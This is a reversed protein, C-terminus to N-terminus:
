HLSEIARAVRDRYENFLEPDTSYSAYDGVINAPIDLLKRAASLKNKKGADLVPVKQLAEVKQRLLHFYEYDEIGDRQMEWRISDIPGDLYKAKDVGPNRNPPYLFRGDGNGWPIKQGAFSAGGEFWCMPDQWPNQLKDTYATASTWYTSQWGLMGRVGQSWCQWAFARMATPPADIFPTTFPADSESAMYAWFEDGAKQRAKLKANDLYKPTFCWIDVAGYLPAEPQETLLRKLQPAYKKILEMTRRVEGYTAEVPEDAWYVYATALWGRQKLHAQVQSLYSGMLVEYEKSGEKYPLAAEGTLNINWGLNQLPLMWSRIPYRAFAGQMERDFETWDIKVQSPSVRSSGATTNVGFDVKPTVNTYVYPATRHRAYNDLYKQLVQRTEAKGTLNHYRQILSTSINFASRLQTTTPLGFNYIRLSIPVSRQWGDGAIKLEGRYLGPPTKEPTYVSIWFPQNEGAKLTLPKQHLPLPDPWLGTAGGHASPFLVDVYEVDHIAIDGAAIKATGPGTLGNLTVRVNQVDREPRVIVQVAEYENAASSLEAGHSAKSPPQEDRRVKYGAGAWWVGPAGTLTAGYGAQRQAVTVGETQMQLGDFAYDSGTYGGANGKQWRSGIFIAHIGNPFGFLGHSASDLVQTNDLFVRLTSGDAEARLQHWGATRAVNPQSVFPGHPRFTIYKESSEWPVFGFGVNEVNSLGAGPMFLIEFPESKEKADYFWLSVSGKLSKPLFFVSGKQKGPEAPFALYNKGERPSKNHQGDTKLILESWSTEAWSSRDPATWVKAFDSQSKYTEFDGATAPTEAATCGNLALLSLQLILAFPMAKTVAHNQTM